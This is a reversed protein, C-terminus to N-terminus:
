PKTSRIAIGSKVPELSVREGSSLGALVELDGNAIPEGIRIQRLRPAGKDDLVYVGTIEGRRLVAPAPVTIKKAQGVAFHARASMGPVIGPLGDPLYLRATATHSKTDITPLVEIRSAEVSLNLEPFEIRATTSRKVEGLKYQPISAIVRMGKPEYVTFLPLGPTAMDGVELHRQAVVGTMPSTISAHSYTAGSAGATGQAAKYAADAQDLAAQSVFKQAHLNRTREYSAKAQLLQAQAAADGGAAERADIRMLMQGQKVVQGADARVELVRGAIQAAITSQRVAEVTAEAPLGVVVDKLEVIVSAVASTDAAIARSISLGSALAVVLATASV